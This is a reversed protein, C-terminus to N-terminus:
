GPQFKSLLNTILIETKCFMRQAGCTPKKKQKQKKHSQDASFTQRTSDAQVATCSEMYASPDSWIYSIARSPEVVLQRQALVNGDTSAAIQTASFKQSKTRLWLQKVVLM